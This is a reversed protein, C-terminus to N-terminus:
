PPARRPRKAAHQNALSESLKIDDALEAVRALLAEKAATCSELKRACAAKADETARTNKDPHLHLAATHYAQVVLDKLNSLDHVPESALKNFEARLAKAYPELTAVATAFTMTQAAHIAAVASEAVGVRMKLDAARNRLTELERRLAPTDTEALAQAFVDVMTTVRAHHSRVNTLASKEFELRQAIDAASDSPDLQVACDKKHRLESEAETLILSALHEAEGARLAAKVAESVAGPEAKPNPNGSTAISRLVAAATDDVSAEHASLAEAAATLERVRSSPNGYRMEMTNIVTWLAASINTDGQFGAQRAVELMPVRKDVAGLSASPVLDVVEDDAGDEQPEAAEDGEDGEEGEDAEEAEDDEDAGEEGEEHEAGDEESEEDKEEGAGKAAKIPEDESDYHDSDPSVYGDESGDDSYSEYGGQEKMEDAASKFLEYTEKLKAAGLARLLLLGAELTDVSKCDEAHFYAWTTAGLPDNAYIGVINSKVEAAVTRYLMGYDASGRSVAEFRVLDAKTEVDKCAGAYKAVLQDYRKDFQAKQALLRQM